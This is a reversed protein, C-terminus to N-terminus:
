GSGAAVGEREAVVAHVPPRFTPRAESRPLPRPRTPVVYLVMFVFHSATGLLVFVHFLEHSGFWGTSLTPWGFADLIGGLGHLGAGLLGWFAGGWGTKRVIVPAPLLGFAGVGLYIAVTLPYYTMPLTWKIVSGVVAVFWIARLFLTRFRGELYVVFIPTYTGAILCYIATHDLLRFFRLQEPPLRLAHFTGSALYLLCMTGTFIAVSIQRVRDGACLRWLIAFAFVAWLFGAFHTWAAVPDRFTLLNTIHENM